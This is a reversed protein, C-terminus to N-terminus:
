MELDDYALLDLDIARPGWRIGPVRGLECELAQLGDLVDLPALDTSLAVAANVFDAQDTYGWAKTRYLRSRRRVTGLMGLAGIAREVTSRADGANAGIGIYADHLGLDNAKAKAYRRADRRGLHRAQRRDRRGRAGAPRRSGRRGIRRGVAGVIRVVHRCRHPYAHSAAVRLGVYRGSRRISRGRGSENRDYRGRRVTRCARTRVCFSWAKRLRPHGAANDPGVRRGGVAFPRTPLACRRVHQPSTTFACWMPAPRLQWCM